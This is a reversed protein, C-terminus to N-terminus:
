QRGGLPVSALVEQHGLSYLVVFEAGDKPLRYSNGPAYEGLFTANETVAGKSEMPSAYVLLDPENLANRSSIHLVMGERDRGTRLRVSFCNVQVTQETEPTLEGAVTRDGATKPLSQRSVIGDVFLVPLAIGLVLFSRRHLQRLPQIM